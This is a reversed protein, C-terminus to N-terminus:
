IQAKFSNINFSYSLSRKNSIIKQKWTTTITRTKGQPNGHIYNLTWDRPTETNVNQPQPQTHPVNLLSCREDNPQLEEWTKDLGYHRGTWVHLWRPQFHLIFQNCEIQKNLTLFWNLLPANLIFNCDVHSVQGQYYVLCM